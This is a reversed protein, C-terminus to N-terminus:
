FPLDFETDDEAGVSSDEVPRIKMEITKATTLGIDQEAINYWFYGHCLMILKRDTTYARYRGNPNTEIADTPPYWWGGRCQDATNEYTWGSWNDNDRGHASFQKNVSAKLGDGADGKYGSARLLTYNDKESSIGFDRYSASKNIGDYTKIDVRVEFLRGQDATMDYLLELGMWFEGTLNGFGKEYDDWGRYFDLRPEIDDRRQFVTWMKGGKPDQRCYYAQVTQRSPDRLLSYVGSTKGPPLESCDRAQPEWTEVMQGTAACIVALLCIAM